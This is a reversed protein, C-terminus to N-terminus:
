DSHSASLRADAGTIQIVSCMGALRSAISDDDMKQALADLSYKGTILLGARDAFARRDLIEQQLQRSYPTDAGAGFDDLLLVDADVFQDIVAQEQAPDKMRVRRTLQAAPQIVVSLTEEFCRRGAAYALHTKGVGCAGWLYLSQAIPNFDKCKQYALKNGPTTKYREFTFERYPKEGGLLEILGRRHQLAQLQAAREKEFVEQCAPCRCDILQSRWVGTGAM